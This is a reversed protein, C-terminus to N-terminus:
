REQAEHGLFSDTLCQLHHSLGVGSQSDNPLNLGEETTLRHFVQIQFRQFEGHPSLDQLQRSGRDLLTEVRVGAILPARSSNPFLKPVFM